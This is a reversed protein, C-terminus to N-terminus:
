VEVYFVNNINKLSNKIYQEVQEIVHEPIPCCFDKTIKRTVIVSLQAITSSDGVNNIINRNMCFCKLSKDSTLRCVCSYMLDKIIRAYQEFSKIDDISPFAQTLTHTHTEAIPVGGMDRCRKWVEQIAKGSVGEVSGVTYLVYLDDNVMCALAYVERAYPDHISKIENVPKNLNSVVNKFKELFTKLIDQQNV